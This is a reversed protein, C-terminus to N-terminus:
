ADTVRANQAHPDTAIARALLRSAGPNREIAASIAAIADPSFAVGFSREIEIEIAHPLEIRRAADVDLSEKEVVRASFSTDSDARIPETSKAAGSSRPASPTHFGLPDISSM